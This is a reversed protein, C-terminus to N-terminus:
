AERVVLDQEDVRFSAKVAKRVAEPAAFTISASALRRCYGFRDM